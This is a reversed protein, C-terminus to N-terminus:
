CGSSNSPAAARICRRCPSSKWINLKDDLVAQQMAAIAEPKNDEIGILVEEAYLLERLVEAGRVIDTARERMLMDDCTIYPECEAGNLVLTKIKHKHSYSKMDSPFVAGGLGVVGAQRLLHRLDTHPTQRYDM